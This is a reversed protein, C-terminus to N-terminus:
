PHPIAVVRENPDVHAGAGEDALHVHHRDVFVASFEVFQGVTPLTGLGPDTSTHATTRPTPALFTGESRPHNPNGSALRNLDSLCKRHLDQMVERWRRCHEIVIM